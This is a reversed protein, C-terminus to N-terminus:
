SVDNQARSEHMFVPDSWIRSPDTSGDGGHAALRRSWGLDRGLLAVTVAAAIVWVLTSPNILDGRSALTRASFASFLFNLMGHLMISPIVSGGSLNVFATLVVTAAACNTIFIAQGLVLGPLTEQGTLLAPVERPFHWLAWALGLVLAAGFPSGFRRILIPLAFGRWGLEELLGGQNLFLAVLWASAFTRWDMVGLVRVFRGMTEPGGILGVAVTSVGFALGIFAILVAYLRLAERVGIDGRVPRYAGLLAKVACAGWGLRAVILASVTPAFPFFFFPAALPVAIYCLVSTIVGDKHWTLIPHTRIVEAQMAYFHEGLSGHPWAPNHLTLEGIILYTFLVIPFALALGYFSWFPRRRVFLAIRGASM